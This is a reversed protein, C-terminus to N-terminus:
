PRQGNKRWILQSSSWYTKGDKEVMMHHNIVMYNPHFSEPWMEQQDFEVSKKKELKDIKM